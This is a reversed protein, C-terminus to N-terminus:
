KWIFKYKQLECWRWEINWEMWPNLDVFRGAGLTHSKKAWDTFCQLVLVFAMVPNLDLQLGLIKKQYIAINSKKQLVVTVIM